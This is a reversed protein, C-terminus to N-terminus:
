DAIDIRLYKDNMGHYTEVFFEFRAYAMAEEPSSFTEFVHVVDNKNEIVSFSYKGARDNDRIEMLLRGLHNLGSKNACKSCSCDGWYNDHWTNGEILEEDGTDQLKQRLLPNLLFKRMLCQRMVDVKIEEWDTRMLGRRGIRKAEGPTKANSIALRDSENVMKAAQFAHEVTPYLVGDLVVASESFNSLFFYKGHFDNIM